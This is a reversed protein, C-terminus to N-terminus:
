STEVSLTSVSTGEAWAPTSRWIRTGSPSVTAMPVRQRDDGVGGALLEVYRLLARRGGIGDDGGPAAGPTPLQTVLSVVSNSPLVPSLTRGFKLSRTGTAPTPPSSASSPSSAPATTPDPRSPRMARLSTSAAAALRLRWAGATAGAALGRSRPRGDGSDSRGRRRGSSSDDLEGPGPAVGGLVHHPRQRRRRVRQHGGLDVVVADVADAAGGPEREQREHGAGDDVGDGLERVDVRRHTVVLEDHM